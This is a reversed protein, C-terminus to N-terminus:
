RSEWVVSLTRHPADVTFDVAQSGTAEVGGDFAADCWVVGHWDGYYMRYVIRGDVGTYEAVPTVMGEQIVFGDTNLLCGRIPDGAGDTVLMTVEGNPRNIQQQRAWAPLLLALGTMAAIGAIVAMVACWGAISRSPSAVDSM